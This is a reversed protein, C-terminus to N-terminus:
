ASERKSNLALLRDLIEEDPLNYPWGYADLVAQDLKQHAQELWTPRQNYLSTLTRKRLEVQAAGDPNLWSDRKETLERAAREIAEVRPDDAPESCPPWPFPFTEFTTTPTYRPRDELSTGMRLSWIEHPKSHLVGFFYEDERAIAILQHDPLTPQAVWAFLRHKALTPTVIFRALPALAKRM